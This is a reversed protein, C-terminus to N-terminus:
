GWEKDCFYIGFGVSAGLACLVTFVWPLEMYAEGPLAHGIYFGLWVEPITMILLIIGIVGHKVKVEGMM